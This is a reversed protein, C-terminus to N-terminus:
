NLALDLIYQSINKGKEKAKQAIKEKEEPTVRIQLYVNKQVDSKAGKTGCPRGAGERKGGWTKEDTM